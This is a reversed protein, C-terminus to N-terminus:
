DLQKVLAESQLRFNEQKTALMKERQDIGSVIEQDRGSTPDVIDILSNQLINLQSSEDLKAMLDERERQLKDEAEILLKEREGLAKEKETFYKERLEIKRKNLLM